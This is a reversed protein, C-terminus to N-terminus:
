AGYFVKNTLLRSKAVNSLLFKTIIIATFMSTLIGISLTLAFGRIPGSGFYFLVVAAILTTINSDLIARFAQTFGSDISARLTKGAKLEEKIREFIIINADVAMGISLVIGAIGPLTLTAGISALILMIFMVYFALAFDAVLGPIRYYAIMFLLVIAVGYKAAIISKDLSDKGLTPGVSRVEVNELDVPLAGARILMALEAAKDISPMGEIVAEGNPIVDRVVPASIVREDLYIEIQQDIFKRTAEEFKKAGESNLQLQVMPENGQGYVARAEKVDDGTLVVGGEPDIFRLSATQGIIDLAKETDQVGPLEVRIRDEGQRTIIPEAVGLEDIRGRIVEVAGDMKEDTVPQGAKEKGELLVYVGGKLDLGLNIANKVPKIVYEGVHAGNILVYGLLVGILLVVLIKAFSKAEL